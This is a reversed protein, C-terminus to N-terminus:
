LGLWLRAGAIPRRLLYVILRTEEGYIKATGRLGIRLRPDDAEFAARLRYAMVGEPTASARYGARTLRAPIPDAPDINLFMEVPAGPELVIADSVALRIELARDGPDALLMVREGLAVPRGEWDSADDFIAVGDRPAVGHIRE